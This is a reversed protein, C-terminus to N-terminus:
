RVEEMNHVFIKSPAIKENVSLRNEARLILSWIECEHSLIILFVIKYGVTIQM